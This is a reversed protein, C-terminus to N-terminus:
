QVALNGTMNPHPRCYFRYTGADAGFTVRQTTGPPVNLDVGLADITFTHRTTDDNTVAVAVTGDTVTMSTQDFQFDKATLRLDGAQAQASDVGAAAVVSVGTALVLLVTAAAAVATASRSPLDPGRGRRFAPIAAVSGVLTAVTFVVLPLFDTLTEPHTLADGLFPASSLLEGLSVVGLWVAGVRRWRWRLLLGIVFPAIMAVFFGEVSRDIIMPVAFSAIAAWAAAAQLRAWGVRARRDDRADDRQALAPETTRNLTTMTM